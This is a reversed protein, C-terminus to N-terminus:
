YEDQNVKVKRIKPAFFVHILILVKKMNQNNKKVM